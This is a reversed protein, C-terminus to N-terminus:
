QQQVDSAEKAQCEPCFEGEQNSIWGEPLKPPWVAMSKDCGNCVVAAWVLDGPTVDPLGEHLQAFREEVSADPLLEETYVAEGSHRDIRIAWRKRM